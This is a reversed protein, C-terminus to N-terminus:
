FLPSVRNPYDTIIGDANRDILKQMTPEDNITWYYIAMGCEHARNIIGQSSLNLLGHLRGNEETGTFVGYRPTIILVDYPYDCEGPDKNLLFDVYFKVVESMSANRTLDSYNEDLHRLVEENFSTLMAKEALDYDRVTEVLRDMAKIGENGSNKIEFIYKFDGNSTLYDLIRDLSVVRLDEPVDDGRLGKYPTSGDEAVFNEAFNLEGLEELTYDGPRANEIGFVDLSDTTRDLTEDHLLILQGDKTMWLDMEVIDISYEGNEIDSILGKAAMMTDEPFIGGGMRHASVDTGSQVIFTNEPSIDQNASYYEGAFSGHLQIYVIVAAAALLIIILIILLFKKIKKM